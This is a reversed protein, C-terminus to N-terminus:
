IQWNASQLIPFDVIEHNVLTFALYTFHKFPKFKAVMPGLKECSFFLTERSILIGSGGFCFCRNILFRRLNNQLSNSINTM